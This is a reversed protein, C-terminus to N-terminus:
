KLQLPNSPCVPLGKRGDPGKELTDWPEEERFVCCPRAGPSPPPVVGLGEQLVAGEKQILASQHPLLPIM